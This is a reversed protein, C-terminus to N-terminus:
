GHLSMLGAGCRGLLAAAAHQWTGTAVLRVRPGCLRRQRVGVKAREEENTDMIYAMYWSERNKEKAEREYRAPPRRRGAVLILLCRGRGPAPLSGCRARGRAPCPQGAGRVWRGCPCRGGERRCPLRGPMHPPAHPRPRLALQRGVGGARRVERHDPRGRRRHPVPDPGCHHVQRRGRPRHVRHEPARQPACAPSPLHAARLLGQLRLSPLLSQRAQLVAWLQGCSFLHVAFAGPIAERWRM